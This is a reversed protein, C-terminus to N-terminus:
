IANAATGFDAAAGVDCITASRPITGGDHTVTGASAALGLQVTQVIDAGTSNSILATITVPILDGVAGCKFGGFDIAVASITTTGKHLKFVALNGATNTGMRGRIVVEYCRGAKFVFNTAPDLIMAEAGNTVNTTRATSFRFGQGQQIGNLFLRDTNIQISSQNGAIDRGTLLIESTVLGDVKPSDIFLQPTFAVGGVESASIFGPTFVHGGHNPLDWDIAPGIPSINIDKGSAPDTVTLGSTDFVAVTNGNNDIIVFPIINAGDRWGM